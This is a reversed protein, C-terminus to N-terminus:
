LKMVQKGFRWSTYFLYPLFLAMTLHGTPLQTTQPRTQYADRLALQDMTPVSKDFMSIIMRINKGDDHGAITIPDSQIARDLRSLLEITNIGLKKLTEKRWKVVGTEQSNTLIHSLHGGGMVHVFGSVPIFPTLLANTIAGLSTGISISREPVLYGHHQLWDCAQVSNCIINLIGTEVDEITDYEYPRRARHQIVANWKPFRTFFWAFANAVENNGGLIPHLLVTPAADSVKFIDLTIPEDFGAMPVIDPLRVRTFDYNPTRRTELTEFNEMDWQPLHITPM